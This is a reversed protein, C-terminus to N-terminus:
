TRLQQGNSADLKGIPVLKIVLKILGLTCKM